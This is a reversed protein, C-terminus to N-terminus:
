KQRSGLIKRAPVHNLARAWDHRSKLELLIMTMQNITLNKHTQFKVFKDLPLRAARINLKKAKAITLPPQSGKDVISGIIYHHDAEFEHLTHEADPSLYVLKEKPFVDTADGAHIRLPLKDFNPMYSQIHPWLLSKPSLNCFNLVFPQRHFRNESFSHMIQKATNRIEFKSM